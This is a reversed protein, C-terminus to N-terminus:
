QHVRHGALMPAIAHLSDVIGLCKQRMEEIPPLLDPVMIVPMGAAHAARVGNYSDELALCRQPTVGLAAAAHLFLDPHPKGRTVDDRTLIRDFRDTLGAADLHNLAKARKSSTAVARPMQMQDLLELLETVGPKRELLGSAIQAELHRTSADFLDDAPASAGYRDLLIRRCGDLPVGIMLHCLSESLELGLEEGALRLAELALTETNFLLGDMDFVIADVALRATMPM